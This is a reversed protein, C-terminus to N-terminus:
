VPMVTVCHHTVNVSEFICPSRDMSPQVRAYTHMDVPSAKRTCLPSDSNIQTVMM